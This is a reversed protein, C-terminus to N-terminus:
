RAGEMEVTGRWLGSFDLSRASMEPHLECFIRYILMKRGNKQRAGYNM